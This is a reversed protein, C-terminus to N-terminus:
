PSPMCTRSQNYTLSWQAAMRRTSSAPRVPCTYLTPPQFSIALRSTTLVKHSMSSLCFGFASPLLVFRTWPAYHTDLQGPSEIRAGDTLQVEEVSLISRLEEASVGGPRLLVGVGREIKLVTSEVGVRCAGGDLVIDVAEGLDEAVHAASTASTHGFVNASPAAIPRGLARIVELAADHRPMRVAVTPLGATVLDSVEHSKPLVITLPGPWFRRALSEAAGPVGRWLSRAAEVSAVHVILPDFTPRKKAEFIRCVAKDNTMDAGLGYVTETPFAVVGGARLTEAAERISEPLSADLVRM